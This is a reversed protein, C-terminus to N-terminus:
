RRGWGTRLVRLANGGLIRVIEDPRFGYALLHQTLKPLESADKMDDPPDTFGDYDSGFGVVDIGGVKAFHDITRTIFNLGRGTEHPMLWYNMFIVGIVGGSDAIKKIEWDQLNYPDPNIEFAGVHSLVLPARRNVIDYVRARASPTCHSLDILMGLEVMKEVVEEGFKMLGLSINNSKGSFWGFKQMNEPWPFCPYVLENEFFHALSLCAVGRRFLKELNELKGDLVHGGEIAHICTVPRDKGQALITELEPLSRALIALRKGTTPDTSNVIAKEMEDLMDQIVEFYPRGYIKNWLHPKLFRLYSLPPCEEVIGREPAYQTSFFVDVGGQKLKHFDTRVSFPNFARPSPYLRNTLVRNFLAVKLGPHAHLDFITAQEFHVQKWVATQSEIMFNSRAQWQSSPTRKGIDGSPKSWYPVNTV